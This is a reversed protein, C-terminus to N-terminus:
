KVSLFQVRLFILQPKFAPFEKTRSYKTKANAIWIDFNFCLSSRNKGNNWPHSFQDTACLFFCRKLTNFILTRLFSNPDVFSSNVPSHLSSCVSSSWSKYEEGFVSQSIIYFILHLPCTVCQPPPPSSICIPKQYPLRLSPFRKSSISTSSSIINFHIKLLNYSLTHISGAWSLSFQRGNTFQTNPGPAKYLSPFKKILQPVV